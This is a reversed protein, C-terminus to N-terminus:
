ANRVLAKLELRRGPRAGTRSLPNEDVVVAPRLCSRHHCLAHGPLRLFQPASTAHEAPQQNTRFEPQRRFGSLVTNQGQYPGLWGGAWCAVIYSGSGRRGNGNVNGMTQYEAGLFGALAARSAFL